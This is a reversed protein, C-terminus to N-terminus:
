ARQTGGLVQLAAVIKASWEAVEDERLTRELSQFKARLLISYQGSAVSGGRFIEVPVFSRLEALGLGNFVSELKEFIVADSFIFSFDREVSPFRPLPEYRVERLARQYLRDSFIEAIFVQERIKRSSAIQPHL